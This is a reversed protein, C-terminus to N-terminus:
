YRLFTGISFLIFVVQLLEFPWVRRVACTGGELTDTAGRGAGGVDRSKRRGLWFELVAPPGASAFVTALGIVLGAFSNMPLPWSVALLVLAVALFSFGIQNVRRFEEGTLPVQPRDSIITFTHSVWVVDAPGPRARIGM